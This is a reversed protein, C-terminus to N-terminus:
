PNCFITFYFEALTYHNLPDWDIQNVDSMQLRITTTSNVASLKQSYTSRTTFTGDIMFALNSQIYANSSFIAVSANFDVYNGFASATATITAGTNNHKTYVDVVGANITAYGQFTPTGSALNAIDQTTSQVTVGSQVIPVAETGNLAGASTLGSIKVNSM